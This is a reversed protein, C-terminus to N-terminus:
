QQMRARQLQKRKREWKQHQYYRYAIVGVLMAGWIAVTAFSRVGLLNLGNTVAQLIVMAMVLGLVKGFGGFPDTGGLMCILVTSLLLSSGQRANASNFRALMVVAAIGALVSSIVYTKLLVRRVNVGSYATATPNSGVFFLHRGYPRRHFIIAMVLAVVLFIIMHIPLGLIRANGILLYAEPMSSIVFGRTIALTIGEYLIMTGLTTLVAPVEVYGVLFGNLLGLVISVIMGLAIAGVIIIITTGGGAGQPFVGKLFLAMIVATLNASSIISLNIGATVMPVMMALSLLGLEPMQALLNTINHARLFRGGTAVTMIALVVFLLWPLAAIDQNRDHWSQYRKVFEAFM